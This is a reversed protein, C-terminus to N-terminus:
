YAKLDGEITIKVLKGDKTGECSVVNDLVNANKLKAKFYALQEYKESQATITIHQVTQNNISMENDSRRIHLGVFVDRDSIVHEQISKLPNFIDYVGCDKYIDSCSEIYLNKDEVEDLWLKEDKGRAKKGIHWLPMGFITKESKREIHPFSYKGWGSDFSERKEQGISEEEIEDRLLYDLSCHFLTSLATM